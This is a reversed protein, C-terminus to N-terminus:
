RPSSVENEYGISSPESFTGGIDFRLLVELGNM